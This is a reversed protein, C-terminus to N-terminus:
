LNNLEYESNDNLNLESYASAPNMGIELGTYKDEDERLPNPHGVANNNRGSSITSKRSKKRRYSLLVIIFIYVLCSPGSPGPDSM